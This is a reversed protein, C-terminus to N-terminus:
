ENDNCTFREYFAVNIMFIQCNEYIIKANSFDKVQFLHAADRRLSARQWLFNCFSTM